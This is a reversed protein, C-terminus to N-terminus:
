HAGAPRNTVPLARRMARVHELFRDELRSLTIHVDGRLVARLQAAGPSNPRRALVAEVMAPTSRHRVDAEHCARALDEARLVAALDVLTRPVTTIPIGRWTSVDAREIRSERVKIGKPRRRTSATVEPPPVPGKLVGLFYGAAPGSLVARDGCARVAALYRASSARRGIASGISVRHVRLLTGRRLRQKIEEGTIGIRGLQARTVVGYAAGAIRALKQEV